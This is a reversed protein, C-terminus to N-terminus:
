SASHLSGSIAVAVGYVTAWQADDCCNGLGDFGYRGWADCPILADLDLFSLSFPWATQM